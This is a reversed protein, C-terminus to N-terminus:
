KILDKAEPEKIEPEKPASEQIELDKDEPEKDEPEKNKSKKDKPKKDEVKKDEPEPLSDLRELEAQKKDEKEKDEQKKIESKVFDELKKFDEEKNAQGSYWAPVFYFFKQVVEQFHADKNTDSLEVLRDFAELKEKFDSGEFIPSEKDNEMKHALNLIWWHVTKNRARNEATHDFVSSKNIEFNQIELLLGMMENELTRKRLETEDSKEQLMLRQLDNEKKSYEEYVRKIEVDENSFRKIIESRTLVGDRVEKGFKIAYFLEAEDYDNRNPKKIFYVQPSETKEKRVVTIDKGDKDKESVKIEKEISKNISFQYIKKM